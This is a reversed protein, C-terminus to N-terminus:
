EPSCIIGAGDVGVSEFTCSRVFFMSYGSIAEPVEQETYKATYELM